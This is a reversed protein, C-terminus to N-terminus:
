SILNKNNIYTAKKNMTYKTEHKQYMTNKEKRYRSTVYNIRRRHTNYLEHNFENRVQKSSMKETKCLPGNM